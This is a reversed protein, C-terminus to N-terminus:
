TRCSALSNYNLYYMSRKGLVLNSKVHFIRDVPYNKSILGRFDEIEVLFQSECPKKSIVLTFYVPISKKLRVVTTEDINTSSLNEHIKSKLQDM